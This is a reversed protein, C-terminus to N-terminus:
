PVTISAADVYLRIVTAADWSTLRARARLQVFTAGAPVTLSTLAAAGGNVPVEGLVDTRLVTLANNIWIAELRLPQRVPAGAMLVEAAWLGLSVRSGAPMGATSLMHQAYFEGPAASAGTATFVARFSAVGSASLENVVRTGVVMAATIPGGVPVGEIWGTANTELSPNTSLNTATTVEGTAIEASPYPVLNYPTDQVISPLTPTLVLPKTQGYVWPREATITWEVKKVIHVRDTSVREEVPLPGSTVAVSHMFRRYTDVVALYDAENQEPLRAPPCDVFFQLDMTGCADGHQGCVGDFVSELWAMGYDIADAGRALLSVEFRPTKVGKRTRGIVGGPGLGETVPVSRSSEMIGRFQLGVVGLFRSSLDPLSPDYWPAETINEYTYPNEFLADQLTDCRREQILYSPCDSTLMYGRARETNVVEVEGLRLYGHYVM